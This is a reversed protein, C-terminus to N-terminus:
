YPLSKNQWLMWTLHRQPQNAEKAEEEKAQNAEKAEEEKAQNAERAEKAGKAHHHGVVPRLRM